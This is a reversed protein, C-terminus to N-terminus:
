DNMGTQLINGLKGIYKWIPGGWDTPFPYPFQGQHCVHPRLSTASPEAFDKPGGSEFWNKPINIQAHPPPHCQFWLLHVSQISFFASRAFSLIQHILTVHRIWKQKGFILGSKVFNDNTMDDWRAKQRQLFLFFALFGLPWKHSTASEPFTPMEWDSGTLSLMVDRTSCTRQPPIYKQIFCRSFM